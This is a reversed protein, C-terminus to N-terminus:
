AYKKEMKDIKYNLGQIRTELYAIEKQVHADPKGEQLKELNLKRLQVLRLEDKSAKYREAQWEAVFMGIHYIPNLWVPILKMQLPDLKKEGVTSALSDYNDSTIVIDPVDSLLKHVTATQNTVANLATCYTVFNTKIYEIEAPSLSDAITTGGDEYEATECVFIYLLFKRSFRSVFHLCEAFQLLNAKQYTLGAGAIEESFTKEILEECADLNKLADPLLAGIADVINGKGKVMRGFVALQDQLLPSKFKCGKFATSAQHFAPITVDKYETRTLRLDETVRDKGFSPLISTIFSPIKM